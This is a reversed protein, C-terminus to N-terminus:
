RNSSKTKIRPYKNWTMWTYSDNPNRFDIIENTNPYWTHTLAHSESYIVDEQDMTIIEDWSLFGIDDLEEINVNESYLKRKINREIM